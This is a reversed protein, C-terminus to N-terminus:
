KGFRQSLLSMANLLHTVSSPNKFTPIAPSPFGTLVAREVVVDRFQEFLEGDVHVGTPAYFGSYTQAQTVQSVSCLTYFGSYFELGLTADFNSLYAGIPLAWDVVFSYPLLEWALLAPNTIGLQALSTATSPARYYTVSYKLSTRKSGRYVDTTILGSSTSRVTKDLSTFERGFARTTVFTAVAHKEALVELSGYIDSLLPKWGYQLALWGSGLAKTASKAYAKNFRSIGRRGVPVGLHAAAAAFNGHKLQGAAKALNLITEGMMHAAKDREAMLEPLNAKQDKIKGLLDNRVRGDLSSSPVTDAVFTRTGGASPYIGSGFYYRQSSRPGSLYADNFERYYGRLAWFKRERFRYANPKLKLSSKVLTHFGPTNISIRDGSYTYKTINSVSPNTTTLGITQTAVWDGKLTVPTFTTLTMKGGFYAARYEFLLAV